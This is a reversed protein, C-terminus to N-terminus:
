RAGSHVRAQRALGVVCVVAGACYITLVVGTEIIIPAAAKFAAVLVAWIALLPVIRWAFYRERAQRKLEDDLKQQLARVPHVAQKEPRRM